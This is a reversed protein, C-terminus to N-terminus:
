GGRARHAATRREPHGGELARPRAGCNWASIKGISSAAACELAKCYPRSRHRGRPAGQEEREREGAGGGRVGFRLCGSLGRLRCGVGRGPAGGRRLGLAGVERDRELLVLQVVP